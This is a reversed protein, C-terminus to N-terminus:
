IHQLSGWMPPVFYSRFHPPCPSRFPVQMELILEITTIQELAEAQAVTRPFGDFMFGEACDPQELWEKVMQIVIEDPVLQGADMYAKAQVGIETENKVNQPLIDGTSIHAIPILDKIKGALTGKGAGPAGLLIIKTKM